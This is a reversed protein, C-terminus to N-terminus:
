PLHIHSCFHELSLRQPKEAQGGLLFDGSLRFYVIQSCLLLDLASNVALSSLNNSTTNMHPSTRTATIHHIVLLFHQISVGIGVCVICLIFHAAAGHCVCRKSTLPSRHFCLGCVPAYDDSLTTDHLYPTYKYYRLRIYLIILSVIVNKSFVCTKKM